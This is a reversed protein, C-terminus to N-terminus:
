EGHHHGCGECEGTRPHARGGHGHRRGGREAEDDCCGDWGGHGHRCCHRHAPSEVRSAIRAVATALAMMGLVPAIRAGLRACRRSLAMPDHGHDGTEYRHM